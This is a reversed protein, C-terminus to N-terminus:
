PLFITSSWRVDQDPDKSLIDLNNQIRKKQQNSFEYLSLHRLLKALCIRVNVVKDMVLTEVSALLKDGSNALDIKKAIEILINICTVRHIYSDSTINQYVEPLIYIYIWDKSFVDTLISITKISEHRVAHVLDNLSKLLLKNLNEIFFQYGLNKGINPLQSVIQIRIKWSKDELLKILVPLIINIIFDKNTAKYLNGIEKIICLEIDFNNTEFLKEITELLYFHTFESGIVPCLKILSTITSLTANEINKGLNKLTELISELLNGHIKSCFVALSTYAVKQVEPEPDNLYKKLADCVIEIKSCYAALFSVRAAIYYRVKWSTDELIYRYDTVDLKLYIILDIGYIRVSDEFDNLFQDVFLLFEKLGRIKQSLVSVTSSIKNRVCIHSESFKSHLLRLIEAQICESVDPLVEAIIELASTISYSNDNAFLKILLTIFYSEKLEYYNLLEIIAKVASMRVNDEIIEALAELPVFLKFICNQTYIIKKINLIQSIIIQLVEESDNLYKLIRPILIECATNEDLTYSPIDILSQIRINIDPNSHSQCLQDLTFEM